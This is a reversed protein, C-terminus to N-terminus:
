RMPVTVAICYEATPQLATGEQGDHPVTLIDIVAPHELEPGCASVRIGHLWWGCTATIRCLWWGCATSISVLDILPPPCHTFKTMPSPPTAAIPASAGLTRYSHPRQGM